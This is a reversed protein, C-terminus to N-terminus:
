LINKACGRETNASHFIIFALFEDPGPYGKM